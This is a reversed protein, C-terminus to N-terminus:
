EVLKKSFLLFTVVSNGPDYRGFGKPEIEQILTKAAGQDMWLRRAKSCLVTLRTSPGLYHVVESTSLQSGHDEFM